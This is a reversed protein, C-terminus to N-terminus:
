TERIRISGNTTRLDIQAGGGNLTGEIRRKSMTGSLQMPIDTKIAGNTTRASIDAQIDGPIAISINGNTTGCNLRGGDFALLELHVSGNTTEGEFSGQVAKATLSGNTSELRLEGHYDEVEVDGNTTELDLVLDMPVRLEYTVRVNNFRGSKRWSKEMYTQIEWGDGSREIKIELAELKEKASYGNGSKAEKTVVLEAHPQSWGKAEIAGNVNRVTIREGPATELERTLNESEWGAFLSTSFCAALFGMWLKKRMM